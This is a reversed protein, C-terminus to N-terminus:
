RNDKLTAWNTTRKGTPKIVGRLRYTNLFVRTGSLDVEQLRYYYAADPKATKDIFQYTNRQGTTGAGQILKANIRRFNKTRSTSRFINFGANNLESETTWSIVVEDTVLKASFQSLEVPLPKGRRYGPTGFDHPSGYYLGAVLRKTDYARRWGRRELGSRPVGEDFRRILSSRVGNILTEPLDWTKKSGPLTGIQDILTDKSDTLKLSFGGGTINQFRSIIMLQELGIAHWPPLQYVADDSLPGVRGGGSHRGLATVILRSQQPPIRFNRDFTIALDLPSPLLSKLHLKWRSLNIVETSNNYVEIWQPLQFNHGGAEFMFESFVVKHNPLDTETLEIPETPGPGTPETEDTTDATELASPDDQVITTTLITDRENPDNTSTAIVFVEYIGADKVMERPYTLTIDEYGDPFLEVVSQDLAKDIDISTTLTIRDPKFGTNTLRLFYSVNHTESTTTTHTLDSLPTLLIGVNPLVKVHLQAYKVIGGETTASVEIIYDIIQTFLNNQITLSVEKSANPTLTVEAPSFKAFTADFEELWVAKIKLVALDIRLNPVKSENTVYMTFVTDRNEKASREQILNGKVGFDIEEPKANPLRVNLTFAIESNNWSLFDIYYFTFKQTATTTPIVTRPITVTVDHTGEGEIELEGPDMLLQNTITPSPGECSLSLSHNSGATSKLRVTFSIDATDTTLTTASSKGVFEMTLASVSSPILVCLLLLIIFSFNKHKVIRYRRKSMM